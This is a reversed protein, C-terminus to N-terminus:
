CQDERELFNFLRATADSQNIIYREMAGFEQFFKTQMNEHHIKDTTVFNEKIGIKKYVSNVSIPPCAANLFTIKKCIVRSIIDPLLELDLFQYTSERNHFSLASFGSKILWAKAESSFAAKRRNIFFKNQENNLCYATELQSRIDKSAADLVERYKEPGFFTPFPNRIDFLLNKRLDKGFLAPLRIVHADDFHEISFVELARRNKGYSKQREFAQSDEDNKEGFNGYVGITSILIFKKCTFTKLSETLSKILDADRGPDANADVMSGPAAACIVLEFEQNQAQYITKSNFKQIPNLASVLNSGVFGSSGIICIKKDLIMM